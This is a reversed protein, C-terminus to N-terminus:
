QKGIRGLEQKVTLADLSQLPLSLLFNIRRDLILFAERFAQAIQESTGKVTAPDPVGWHAAVPQGLWLPCTENAATDCVTLVFDMKPAGPKAFEDWSKSRAGSVDFHMRRLLDLTYPHPEGKPQRWEQHTVRDSAM